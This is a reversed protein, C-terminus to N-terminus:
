ATTWKGGLEREQLEEVRLIERIRAATVEDLPQELLARYRDIEARERERATSEWGELTASPAPRSRLDALPEGLELLRATLRSLHHQEDAHLGNLREALAEDGAAEAQAALSRYFLAQDKEAARLEHLARRIEENLTEAM